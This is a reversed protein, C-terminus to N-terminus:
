WDTAKPDLFAYWYSRSARRLDQSNWNLTLFNRLTDCQEKDVDEVAEPFEAFIERILSQPLEVAVNRQDM